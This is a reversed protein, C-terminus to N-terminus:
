VVEVPFTTIWIELQEYRQKLVEKYQTFFTRNEESDQVDVFLRIHRDQYIVGHASWEGRIVQTEASVADFRERLESLTLVNLEPPVVSGDNRELPLLMEYRRLSKSM